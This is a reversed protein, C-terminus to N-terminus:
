KYNPMYREKLFIIKVLKMLQRKNKEGFFKLNPFFEMNKRKKEKRKNKEEREEKEEEEEHNTRGWTYFTSSLRTAPQTGMAGGRRCGEGEGLCGWLPAGEGREEGTLEGHGAHLKLEPWPQGKCPSAWVLKNKKTPHGFCICM